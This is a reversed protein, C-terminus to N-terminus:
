LRTFVLVATYLSSYHAERNLVILSGGELHWQYVEVERWVGNICRSRGGSAM